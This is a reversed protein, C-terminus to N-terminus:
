QSVWEGNVVRYKTGDEDEVVSGEEYTSADPMGTGADSANLDLGNSAQSQGLVNSNDNGQSSGIAELARARMQEAIPNLKIDGLVNKTTEPQAGLGFFGNTAPVKETKTDQTAMGNALWKDPTRSLIKDASMVDSMSSRRGLVKSPANEMQSFDVNGDQGMIANPDAGQKLRMNKLLAAQIVQKMKTKQQKDQLTKRLAFDLGESAQPRFTDEYPQNITYQGSM